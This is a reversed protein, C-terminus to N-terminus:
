THTVTNPGQDAYSTNGNPSKYGFFAEYQNPEDVVTLVSFDGQGLSNTHYIKLFTSLLASFCAGPITEPPFCLSVQQGSLGLGLLSGLYSEIEMMLGRKEPTLSLPTYRRVLFGM